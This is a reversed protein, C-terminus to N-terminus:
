GDTGHMGRMSRRLRRLTSSCTAYRPKCHMSRLTSSTSRFSPSLSRLPSCRYLMPEAAATFAFRMVCGTTGHRTGTERGWASCTSSSPRSSRVTRLRSPRSSSPPPRLRSGSGVGTSAPRLTRYLVQLYGRVMLAEVRSECVRDVCRHHAARRARQDAGRALGAGHAARLARSRALVADWLQMDPVGMLWRAEIGGRM